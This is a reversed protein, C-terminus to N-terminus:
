VGAVLDRFASAAKEPPRNFAAAAREASNGVSSPKGGNLERVMLLLSPFASRDIGVASCALALPEPDARDCARRVDGLTFGGLRAMAAQFLSLRKEKLARLLYGARLEGASDLKAVLKAEMEEREPDRAPSPAPRGVDGRRATEVAVGLAQDLRAADVRFRDVIAGRLAVGVYAYLQEALLKTLKPHRVLPTRLSAVRRSAGVLRRMHEASVEASQNAALATLVAPEGADLVADVVAAGINPRRAVEIQHEITAEVLIRILDADQLLPSSQIVPRAIEIEDLALVNILAKPARDAAALQESLAQRIEREAQMVLTMFLEGVVARVQPDDRTDPASDCLDAVALLLRQRDGTTRSRALDMLETARAAQAM